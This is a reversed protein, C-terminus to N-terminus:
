PPLALPSSSCHRSPGVSAPCADGASVAPWRRVPPRDVSRELAFEHRLMARLADHGSAATILNYDTNQLLSQLALLNAPKDDVLLINIKQSM